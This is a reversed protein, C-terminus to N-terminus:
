WTVQHRRAYIVMPRDALLSMVPPVLLLLSNAAALILGGGFLWNFPFLLLAFVSFFLRPNAIVPNIACTLLFAMTAPFFNGMGISVGAAFFVAAFFTVRRDFRVTQALIAILLVAMQLVFVFHQAVSDVGSFAFFRLAVAGAFARWFDLHNRPKRLERGLRVSLDSPDVAGDSAFKELAERHRRRRSRWRGLRLLSRPFWLLLLASLLYLWHIQLGADM